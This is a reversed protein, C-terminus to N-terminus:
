KKQIENVKKNYRKLLLAIALFIFSTGILTAAGKIDRTTNLLLYIIGVVDLQVFVLFAWMEFYETTSILPEVNRNRM